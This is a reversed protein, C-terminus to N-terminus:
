SPPRGEEELTDDEEKEEKEDEKRGEEEVSYCWEPLVIEPHKTALYETRAALSFVTGEEEDADVPEVEEPRESSISLRDASDTSARAGDLNSFSHQSGVPKKM